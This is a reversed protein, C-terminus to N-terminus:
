PVDHLSSVIVSQIQAEYEELLLPGAPKKKKRKADDEDSSDDDGEEHCDQMLEILLCMLQIGLKKFEIGDRKAIRYIETILNYLKTKFGLKEIIAMKKADGDVGEVKVVEVAATELVQKLVGM